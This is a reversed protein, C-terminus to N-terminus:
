ELMEILKQTMSELHTVEFRKSVYNIVYEDTMVMNVQIDNNKCVVQFWVKDSNANLGGLSGSSVEANPCRGIAKIEEYSQKAKEVITQM